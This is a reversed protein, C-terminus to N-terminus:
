FRLYSLNAQHTKHFNLHDVFYMLENIENEPVTSPSSKVVYQLLWPTKYIENKIQNRQVVIASIIVM